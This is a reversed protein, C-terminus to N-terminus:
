EHDSQLRYETSRITELKNDLHTRYETSSPALLFQKNRVLVNSIWQSRDLDM